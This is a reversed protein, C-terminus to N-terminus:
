LHFARATARAQACECHHTHTQRPELRARLKPNLPFVRGVDNKM